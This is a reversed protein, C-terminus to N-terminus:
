GTVGSPAVLAESFSADAALAGAFFRLLPFTQEKEWVANGIDHLREEFTTELTEAPRESAELFELELRPRAGEPPGPCRVTLIGKAPDFGLTAQATAVHRRVLQGSPTKWTLLGLGIVLEFAEGLQQLLQYTRFLEGYLRQIRSRRADDEAWPRWRDLYRTWATVVEPHDVLREPRQGATLTAAERLTPLPGTSQRIEAPDTWPQLSQSLAPPELLTQKKVELWIDERGEGMESWLPCGCEHPMEGFWALLGENRYAEVDRTVTLRLQVFEKLYRLLQLAKARASEPPIAAPPATM